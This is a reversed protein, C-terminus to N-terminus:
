PLLKGVITIVQLHNIVLKTLVALVKKEEKNVPAANENKKTAKTTGQPTLAQLPAGGVLPSAAKMMNDVMTAAKSKEGPADEEKEEKELKVANPNFKNYVDQNTKIKQHIQYALILLGVIISLGFSLTNWATGDSGM